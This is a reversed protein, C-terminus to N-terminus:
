MIGKDNCVVYGTDNKSWKFQNLTDFHNDIIEQKINRLPIKKM